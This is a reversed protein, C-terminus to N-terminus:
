QSSPLATISETIYMIAEQEKSKIRAVARRFIGPFKIVISVPYLCGQRENCGSVYAYNGRKDWNDTKEVNILPMSLLEGEHGDELLLQIAFSEPCYRITESPYGLEDM